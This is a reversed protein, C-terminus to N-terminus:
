MQRFLHAYNRSVPVTESRDRLRLALRGLVDREAAVVQHMNVLTGRHVQWFLEPDLQAALDRISTRILLETNGTMVSTYKDGARFYCVEEAAVMRVSSGVSARIWRLHGNGSAMQQQLRALRDAMPRLAERRLRDVTLKLRDDSVPKLLYDVAEQEFASVAFHEYATVFVVRCDDGVQAAVELGSLGPMRIDLFAIDPRLERIARLAEDGNGLLAEIKIQPWLVALRAALYEALHPEDDAIVARM